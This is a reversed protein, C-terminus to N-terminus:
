DVTECVRYAFPPQQVTPAAKREVTVCVRGERSKAPAQNCNMESCLAAFENPPQKSRPWLFRPKQCCNCLSKRGKFRPQKVATWTQGCTRLSPRCIHTTPGRTGNKERCNRLRTGGRSRPHRIEWWKQVSNRLSTLCTHAGQGDRAVTVRARTARRAHTPPPPPPPAQPRFAKNGPGWPSVKKAVTVCVRGEGTGRTTSKLGNTDVTECVRYAFPHQQVTPAAKREVTVCVRGERTEWTGSQLENRFVTGCIRQAVRDM